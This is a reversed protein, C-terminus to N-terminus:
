KRRAILTVAIMKPTEGQKDSGKPVGLKEEYFVIEWDSYLNKLEQPKPFFMKQEGLKELLQTDSESTFDLIVNLGGGTTTKKMMEITRYFDKKELFHLVYSALYNDFTIKWAYESISTLESIIKESVKNEKAFEYLIEMGKPIEDVAYVRFGNTALFISNRGDGSGLDCVSGTKFESLYKRVMGAPETSWPHMDKKYYDKV